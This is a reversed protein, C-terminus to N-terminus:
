GYVRDLDPLEPELARLAIEALRTTKAAEPSETQPLRKANPEWEKLTFYSLSIPPGDENNLIADIAEKLAFLRLYRQLAPFTLEGTFYIKSDDSAVRFLEVGDQTIQHIVIYEGLFM